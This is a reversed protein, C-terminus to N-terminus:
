LLRWNHEESRLQRDNCFALAVAFMLLEDKQLKMLKLLGNEAILRM